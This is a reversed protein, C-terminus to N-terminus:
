KHDACPAAEQASLLDRFIEKDIDVALERKRDAERRAGPAPSRSWVVHVRNDLYAATVMGMAEVDGAYVVMDGPVLPGRPDQRDELPLFCVDARELDVRYEESLM